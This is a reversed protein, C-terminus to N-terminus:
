NRGELGRKAWSIIEDEGVEGLQALSEAFRKRTAESAEKYKKNLYNMARKEIAEPGETIGRNMKTEINRAESYSARLPGECALTWGQTLQNMIRLEEPNDRVFITYMRGDPSKTIGYVRQEKKNRSFLRRILGFIM